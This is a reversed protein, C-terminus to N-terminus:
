FHLLGARAALAVVETRSSAGLKGLISNVHFKVTHFSVGLRVAIEKNSLGSALHELVELERPTLTERSGLPRQPPRLTDEALEDDIVLLGELIADLARTLRPGSTRRAVVGRAGLALAERARGPESALAVVPYRPALSRVNESEQGDGFDVLVADPDEDLSSAVLWGDEHDLLRALGGLVLEDAGLLLVRRPAKM